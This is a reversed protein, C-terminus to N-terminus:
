IHCLFQMAHAAGGIDVIRISGVSSGSRYALDSRDLVIKRILRNQRLTPSQGAIPRRRTVSTHFALSVAAFHGAVGPPRCRPQNM